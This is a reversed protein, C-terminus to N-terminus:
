RLFAVLGNILRDLKGAKGVSREAFLPIRGPEGSGTLIELEAVKDGKEIPAILPGKYIIRLATVDSGDPPLSAHVARPSVLAVQRANGGQVLAKGVEEGAAFLPRVQWASFGWEMLAKAAAAREPGNRAGAIVMALRRGNREASGLFNYGAERTYGTKIGDAGPVVGLMPDRNRGGGNTWLLHKQGIYRRYLDPHRLTLADALRVLDRASVYTAGEDPWGNPTFFHSNTMGLRRAEANMLQAWVPLSGAFGEALVASGDNASVTNIGRLLLDVSVKDGAKLYLSTGKGQWDRAVAESVTYTQEPKLTGRKIQEFAVYTTMVKTVSAPVFPLDPQRAYLIQGSGLDVLMAVPITELEPPPPPVAATAGTAALLLASLATLPKRM